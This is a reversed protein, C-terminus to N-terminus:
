GPGDDDPVVPAEGGPGNPEEYSDQECRKIDQNFYEGELCSECLKTLTNWYEHEECMIECLQSGPIAREYVECQPRQTLVLALLVCLILQKM